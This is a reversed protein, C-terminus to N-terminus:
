NTHRNHRLAAAFVKPGRTTRPNNAPCPQRQHRLDLREQVRYYSPTPPAKASSLLLDRALLARGALCYKGLPFNLSALHYTQLESTEPRRSSPAHTMHACSACAMGLPTARPKVRTRTMRAYRPAHALELGPTGGGIGFGFHCTM